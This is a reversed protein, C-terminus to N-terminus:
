GKTAAITIEVRRNLRALPESFHGGPLNDVLPRSSGAGLADGLVFAPVGLQALRARIAEARRVSLAQGDGGGPVQATHGTFTAQRGAPCRRLEEAVPVLVADATPLLVASNPGFSVADPVSVSGACATPTVTVPVLPVPQDSVPGRRPLDDTLVTCSAANSAQCLAQWLAVVKAANPLALLPQTGHVVGLGLFQVHRGSADPVLGRGVLDAVVAAIDFGWGLVRFNLPDATQLGSSVLLVTAGSASAELARRYTALLDLGDAGPRASVLVQELRPLSATVTARATERDQEVENEDRMATLDVTEVHGGSVVSVQGGGRQVARVAHDLAREALVPGWPAPEAATATVAITLPPPNQPVACATALLAVALVM